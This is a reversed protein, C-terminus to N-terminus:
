ILSGLKALLNANVYFRKIDASQFENYIEDARDYVMPAAPRGFPSLLAAVAADNAVANASRWLDDASASSKDVAGVAILASSFALLIVQRASMQYVNNKAM